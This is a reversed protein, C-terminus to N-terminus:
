SRNRSLISANVILTNRDESEARLCGLFFACGTVSPIADGSIVTGAEYDGALCREV